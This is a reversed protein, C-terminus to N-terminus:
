SFIFLTKNIDTDIRCWIFRITIVFFILNLSDDDHSGLTGKLNYCVCVCVFLGFARDQVGALFLTPSTCLPTPM